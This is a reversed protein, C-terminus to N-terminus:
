TIQPGYCDRVASLTYDELESTSIHGLLDEGYFDM